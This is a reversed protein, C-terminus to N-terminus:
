CAEHSLHHGGNFRYRRGLRFAESEYLDSKAGQELFALPHGGTPVKQSSIEILWEPEGEVPIILRHGTDGTKRDFTYDVLEFTKEDLARKDSRLLLPPITFRAVVEALCEDDCRLVDDKSLGNIHALAEELRERLKYDVYNFSFSSSHEPMLKKSLM